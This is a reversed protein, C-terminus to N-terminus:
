VHCTTTREQERLRYGRLCLLLLMKGHFEEKHCLIYRLAHHYYCTKRVNKIFSRTHIGDMIDIESGLFRSM